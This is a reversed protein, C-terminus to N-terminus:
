VTLDRQMLCLLLTVVIQVLNQLQVGPQALGIIFRRQKTLGNGTNALRQIDGM